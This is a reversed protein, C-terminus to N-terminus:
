TYRPVGGGLAKDVEAMLEDSFKEVFDLAKM